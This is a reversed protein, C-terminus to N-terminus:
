KPKPIAALNQRASSASEREGRVRKAREDGQFPSTQKLLTLIATVADDVSMASADIRLDPNVPNEYPASIGTFDEIEGRRAMDYLGKPDREACVDLPTNVHVLYFPIDAAEHTARIQERGAEYPSILPALVVLGADAMLRAVQGVRRVNETRDDPTFGLDANLGHRVNDGDLTYAARGEAVLTAELGHAITSKGSASLGTLWVTAGTGGTMKARTKRDVDGEHWAINDTV